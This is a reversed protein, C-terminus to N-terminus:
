VPISASGQRRFIQKDVHAIREEVCQGGLAVAHALVELCGHRCCGCICLIQLTTVHEAPHKKPAEGAAPQVFPIRCHLSMIGLREAPRGSATTDIGVPLFFRNSISAPWCSSMSRM